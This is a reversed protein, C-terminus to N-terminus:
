GTSRKDRDEKPRHLKVNNNGCQPCLLDYDVSLDAYADLSCRLLNDTECWLGCDLCEAPEELQNKNM